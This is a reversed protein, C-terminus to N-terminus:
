RQALKHVAKQTPGLVRIRTPDAPGMRLDRTAIEEVREPSKLSDVELRLRRHEHSMSEVARKEKALAYGLDLVQLHLHVHVLALGELAVAGLLLVGLTKRRSWRKM